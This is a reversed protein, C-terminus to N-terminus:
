RGTRRRTPDHGTPQHHDGEAVSTYVWSPAWVLKARRAAESNTRPIPNPNTIIGAM